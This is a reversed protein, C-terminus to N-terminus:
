DGLYFTGIRGYFPEPAFPFICSRMGSARIIANDTFSARGFLAILEARFCTSRKIFVPAQPRRNERGDVLVWGSTEVFRDM